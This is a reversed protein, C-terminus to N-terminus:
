QNLAQSAQNRLEQSLRTDNAIAQLRDRAAPTDVADYYGIAIEMVQASKYFDQVTRDVIPMVEPRHMFIAINAGLAGRAKDSADGGMYAIAQELGQADGLNVLGWLANVESEWSRKKELVERLADIARPDEMLALAHGAMNAAMKDEDNLATALLDPIAAPDKLDELLKAALFRDKADQSKLLELLAKTGEPGLGKLDAILEATKGPIFASMGTGKRLEALRATIQDITVGKKQVLDKALQESEKRAAALRKELDAIKWEAQALKRDRDDDAAPRSDGVEIVVPKEAALAAPRSDPTKVEVNGQHVLIAVVTAGAAAALGGPVLWSKNMTGDGSRIVHEIEVDAGPGVLVEVPAVRVKLARRAEVRVLGDQLALVPVAGPELRVEAGDKLELRALEAGRAELVAAGEAGKPVEIVQKKDADVFVPSLPARAVGGAPPEGAAGGRWLWWGTGAAAFLLVAAAAARWALPRAAVVESPAGPAPERLAAAEQQLEQRLRERFHPRAEPSRRVGLLRKLNRDLFGDGM